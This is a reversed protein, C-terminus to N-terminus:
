KEPAILDIMKQFVNARMTFMDASATGKELIAKARFYGVTERAMHIEKETLISNKSKNGFFERAYVDLRACNGCDMIESHTCRNKKYHNKFEEFIDM